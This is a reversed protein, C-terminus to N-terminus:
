LLLSLAVGHEVSLALTRLAGSATRWHLQRRDLRARQTLAQSRKSARFPISRQCVLSYLPRIKETYGQPLTLLNREASAAAATNAPSLWAADTALGTVPAGRGLAVAFAAGTLVNGSAWISCSM